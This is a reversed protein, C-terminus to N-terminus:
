LAEIRELLQQCFHRAGSHHRSATIEDLLATKAQAWEGRATPQRWARARIPLGLAKLTKFARNSLTHLLRKKM